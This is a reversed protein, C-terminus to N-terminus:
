AAPRAQVVSLGKATLTYCTETAEPLPTGCPFARPSYDAVWGVSCVDGVLNHQFSTVVRMLPAGCHRCTSTNM